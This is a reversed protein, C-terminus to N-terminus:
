ANAALAPKLKRVAEEKIRPALHSYRLTMKYDSHGLLERVTNLDVGAMVLNSAFTHRLDHWRFDEIEAKTLVAVWSKRLNQFQEGDRGHFVWVSKVGPQNKWQRLINSSEDNLPIHRTQGSKAGDGSVTLNNQEFDVDSWKLNFLEGRRLGTNLSLLVAPRLHDAFECGTLDDYPSESRAERWENASARRTKIALEREDLRARLTQEEKQTLYRVKRNSDTKSPEVKEFPNSGIAGWKLANNLCARLDNMQRNITSPKVKESIRRQRWREILLPTIENLGLKHFEPFTNRLSALTEKVNRENDVGGRLNAILHPKYTDELFQLYNDALVRKRKDIPDEGQGHKAKTHDAALGKATERALPADTRSEDGITVRKGRAYVMTFVLKGSPKVRLTFGPLETDRIEFEKRAAILQTLPDKDPASPTALLKKIKSVLAQNIKARM